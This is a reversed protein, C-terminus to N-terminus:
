EKIDFDKMLKKIKKEAIKKNRALKKMSEDECNGDIIGAGTLFAFARQSGEGHNPGGIHLILRALSFISSKNLESHFLSVQKGAMCDSQLERAPYDLQSLFAHQLAHSWEHGILYILGYSKSLKYFDEVDEKTLYITHSSDCYSSGEITKLKEGRRYCGSFYIRSDAELIITQPIRITKLLKDESWNKSSKKTFKEIIEYIQNEKNISAKLQPNVLTTFCLFIIIQKILLQIKKNLKNM